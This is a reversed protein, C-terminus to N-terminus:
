SLPHHVVRGGPYGSPRRPDNEVAPRDYLRYHNRREDACSAGAVELALPSKARTSRTVARWTALAACSPGLGSM